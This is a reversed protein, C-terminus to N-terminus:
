RLDEEDDEDAGAPVLHEAELLAARQVAASYARDSSLFPGGLVIERGEFIVVGRWGGSRYVSLAHAAAAPDYPDERRGRARERAKERACEKCIVFGARATLYATERTMLGHGYNCEGGLKPM